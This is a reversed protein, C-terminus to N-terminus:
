TEDNEINELVETGNAADTVAPNSVPTNGGYRTVPASSFQVKRTRKRVWRASHSREMDIARQEESIVNQTPLTNRTATEVHRLQSVDFNRTFENNLCDHLSEGTQCPEPRYPIPKFKSRDTYGNCTFATRARRVGPKAPDTRQLSWFSPPCSQRYRSVLRAEREAMTVTSASLAWRRGGSHWPPPRSLRNAALTYERAILLRTQQERLTLLDM